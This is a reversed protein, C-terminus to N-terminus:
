RLMDQGGTVPVAQGTEYRQDIVYLIATIVDKARCGRLMPVKAEYFHRVDDVTTAGPVKGAQLYQVFLGNEPHSWLPGDFFNGPCISNVKIGDDVLELAFSQTLGIGGFKSGAYAFNKKSGVLGSKSNIQVIDSRYEPNARYQTSLIPSVQQVGLYYGKYNVSTVFDFDKESQTKVSEAKVVGANSVFVDLGGYTRVVQELCDRISDSDTVNIPLGISRGAGYKDCLENAAAQAGQDNIDTLVVHAGEAALGRAIELGFGQAAGTVVAVKRNLRGASSSNAAAIKKRYAEVEWDEIFQRDRDTQYNIGGLRTAGAMVKIADLYLLRTTNAQGFDDGIAFLGVGAVLVIKAPYGTRQNHEVVAERLRAVLAEEAEDVKPEFWLPFSNCYVIQDPTMPGACAAQQGAASGVLGLAIESDDLTVVKLTPDGEDALLGRLAPAMSHVVEAANEATTPEGFSMTQWDNGLRAEITSLIEDTHERISEPDEGAVILGHNAMLIAKAGAGGTKAAHEALCEVLKKALTFGPDVYPLWIIDDGFIEEALEPGRVHCTLTNVLTAHSHVVYTSPVINHLLAEVSPRQGKEPECRADLIAAKYQEERTEPDADFTAGALKDLKGRDMIAFGEATITALSTGSAKVYLRDGIKCSTNGGGALVITPDSGYFRSLKCIIEIESDTANFQPWETPLIATKL